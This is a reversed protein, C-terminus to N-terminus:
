RMIVRRSERKEGETVQLIVVGATLQSEGITLDNWGSFVTRASTYIVQGNMGVLRVTVKGGTESNYRVRFHEATTPNPSVFLPNGDTGNSSLRITNSFAFSGDFDMQRLRYYNIGPLPQQDTFDYHTNVSTTGRGSEEGIPLFSRGDPSREVIFRDNGSESATSWILSNTKGDTQGTFLALDVPLATSTTGDGSLAILTTGDGADADQWNGVTFNPPNNFTTVDSTFLLENVPDNCCWIEWRGNQFAVSVNDTSTFYSAKGNVQGNYGLSLPGFNDEYNISTGAQAYLITSVCLTLILLM